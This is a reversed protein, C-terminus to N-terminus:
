LENNEEKTHNPISNSVIITFFLFTNILESMFLVRVDQTLPTFGGYTLTFANAISLYIANTSDIINDPWTIMDQFHIQYLYAYCTLYFAIALLYNLFKRNLTARDQRQKFKSGWVHYYFYVFLNSYILYFIIIKSIETNYNFMWFIILISWKFIQYIDIGINAYTILKENTIKDQYICRAILKAVFKFLEVINTYYLFRIIIDFSPYLFGNM